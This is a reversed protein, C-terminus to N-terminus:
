SLLVAITKKRRGGDNRSDATVGKQQAFDGSQHKRSEKGTEPSM